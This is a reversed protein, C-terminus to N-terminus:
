PRGEQGARAAFRAIDIVRREHVGEGIKEGDQRYAEVRFLFRRGEKELLRAVHRVRQGIPTPALHRVEVRVGVTGEGEELYPQLLRLCLQELHHVMAPTSYFSMGPGLHTIGMEPTTTVVEEGQLDHPVEKM